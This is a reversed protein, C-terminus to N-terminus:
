GPVEWEAVQLPHVVHCDGNVADSVLRGLHGVLQDVPQEHAPPQGADEEVLGGFGHDFGAALQADVDPVVQRFEADGHFAHADFCIVECLSPEDSQEKVKLDCIREPTPSLILHGNFVMADNLREDEVQETEVM